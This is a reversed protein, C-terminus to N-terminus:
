QDGDHGTAPAAPNATGSATKTADNHLLISTSQPALVLGADNQAAPAVFVTPVVFVLPILGLLALVVIRRGLRSRMTVRAM